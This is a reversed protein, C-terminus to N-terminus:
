TKGFSLAHHDTLMKVSILIHTSINSLFFTMLVSTKQFISGQGSIFTGLQARLLRGFYSSTVVEKGASMPSNRFQTVDWIGEKLLAQSGM